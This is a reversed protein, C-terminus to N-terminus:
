KKHKECIVHAIEKEEETLKNSDYVWLAVKEPHFRNKHYYIKSAKIEDEDFDFDDVPSAVALVNEELLFCPLTDKKVATFQINELERIGVLHEMDRNYTNAQVIKPDISNYWAFFIYPQTDTNTFYITSYNHRQGYVDKAAEKYFGHWYPESLEPFYALWDHIYWGLYLLFILIFSSNSLLQIHKIKIHKQLWELSILIGKAAFFCLAPLMILSRNANTISNTLSSPIPSILLWSLFFWYIKNRDKKAFIGILLFPILILYFNGQRGFSFAPTLNNFPFLFNPSFHLAYNRSLQNIIFWGKNNYIRVMPYNLIRNRYIGEEVVTTLETTNWFFVQKARDGSDSFLIGQWILSTGILIILWPILNKKLQAKIKHQNFIVLYMIMILPLFLRTSHYVYMSMVLLLSGFIKVRHRQSTWFGFGLLMLGLSPMPEFAIRAYHLFWPNTVLILGTLLALNKTSKNKIFIILGLAGAAALIVTPMRAMAQNVGGLVFFPMIVYSLFASKYDGFSKIFLPWSVGWEDKGTKLLSYSNYGSAAEDWQFGDPISNLKPLTLALSLFIILLSLLEFKHKKSLNTLTQIMLKM